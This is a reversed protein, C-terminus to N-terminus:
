REMSFRKQKKGEEKIKEAILRAFAKNHGAWIGVETVNEMIKASIVKVEIKQAQAEIVGGDREETRRTQTIKMRLNELARITLNWTEELSRDFAEQVDASQIEKQLETVKIGLQAGSFMTELPLVPLAACSQFALCIGALFGGLLAASLNKLPHYEEVGSLKRNRM